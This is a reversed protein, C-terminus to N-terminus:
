NDHQRKASAGFMTRLRQASQHDAAVVRLGSQYLAQAPGSQPAAHPVTRIVECDLTIPGLDSMIEVRCIDGPSPLVNDHLLGVGGLSADLVYVRAPGVAGRM